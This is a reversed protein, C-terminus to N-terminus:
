LQLIKNGKKFEQNGIITLIKIVRMKQKLVVFFDESIRSENRKHHLKELVLIM